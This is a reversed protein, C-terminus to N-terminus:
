RGLLRRWWPPPPAPPTTMSECYNADGIDVPRWTRALSARVCHALNYSASRLPSRAAGPLPSPCSDKRGGECEALVTGFRKMAAEVEPHEIASLVGWYLQWFRRREKEVDSLQRANAIAAAAETAESYLTFQVDWYRKRFEEQQTRGYQIVGLFIGIATFLLPIITLLERM